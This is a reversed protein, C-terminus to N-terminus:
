APRVLAVQQGRQEVHRAREHNDEVALAADDAEVAEALVQRAVV